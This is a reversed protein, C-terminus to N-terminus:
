SSNFNVFRSLKSLMLKSTGGSINLKSKDQLIEKTRPFDFLSFGLSSAISSFFRNIFLIVCKSIISM